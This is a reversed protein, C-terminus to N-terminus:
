KGVASGARQLDRDISQLDVISPLVAILHDHRRKGEDCRGVDDNAIVEFRYKDVDIRIEEFQIRGSQLCCDTWAGLRDHGNVYGPQWAIHIWDHVDGVAMSESHDLVGALCHKNAISAARDTREAGDGAEGGIDGM